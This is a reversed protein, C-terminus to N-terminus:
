TLNLLYIIWVIQQPTMVTHTTLYPNLLLISRKTPHGSRVFQPFPFPTQYMYGCIYAVYMGM